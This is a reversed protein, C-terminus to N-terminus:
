VEPVSTDGFRAEVAEVKRHLADSVGPRHVLRVIEAVPVSVSEGVGVPTVSFAALM